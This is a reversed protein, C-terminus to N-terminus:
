IQKVELMFRDCGCDETLMPVIKQLALLLMKRTLPFDQTGAKYNFAHKETVQIKPNLKQYAHSQM